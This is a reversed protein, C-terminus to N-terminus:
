FGGQRRKGVGPNFGFVGFGLGVGMADCDFLFDDGYGSGFVFAAFRM